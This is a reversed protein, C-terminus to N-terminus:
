ATPTETIAAEDKVSVTALPIDKVQQQAKVKKAHQHVNIYIKRVTREHESTVEGLASAMGLFRKTFRPFVSNRDSRGAM